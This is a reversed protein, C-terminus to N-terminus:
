SDSTTGPFPRNESDVGGPSTSFSHSGSIDLVPEYAGYAGNLNVRSVDVDYRAIKIDLNHKLAMAICDQLSLSLPTSNTPEARLWDGGVCSLIVILTPVLQKCAHPLM